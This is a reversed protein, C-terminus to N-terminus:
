ATQTATDPKRERTESEGEEDVDHKANQKIRVIGVDVLHAILKFGRDTFLGALLGAFAGAYPNDTTRAGVDVIFLFKGGKLILLAVLGAVTGLVLRRWIDPLKFYACLFAAGITGSLVVVISYLMASPMLILPSFWCTLFSTVWKPMGDQTDGFCASPIPAWSPSQPNATPSPADTESTPDPQSSPEVFPSTTSRSSLEDIERQLSQKRQDLREQTTFAADLINQAARKSLESSNVFEPDTNRVLRIVSTDLNQTIQGAVHSTDITGFANSLRILELRLSNRVRTDLPEDETKISQTASNLVSDFETLFDSLPILAQDLFSAEQELASRQAQLQANNRLTAQQTELRTRVAFADRVLAHISRQHTNTGVISLKRANRLNSKLSQEEQLMTALTLSPTAFPSSNSDELAAPSILEERHGIISERVQSLELVFYDIAQKRAALEFISFVVIPLVVFVSFLGGFFHRKTFPREEPKASLPTNQTEFEKKTM